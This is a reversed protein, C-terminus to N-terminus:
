FDCGYGCGSGTGNNICRECLELTETVQEVGQSSGCSDCENDVHTEGCGSLLMGGNVCGACGFCSSFMISVVSLLSVILGKMGECEKIKVRKNYQM